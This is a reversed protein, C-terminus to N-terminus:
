RTPRPHRRGRKNGKLERMARAFAKQSKVDNIPTWTKAM